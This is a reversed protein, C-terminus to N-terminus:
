LDILFDYLNNDGGLPIKKEILNKKNDIISDHYQHILSKKNM